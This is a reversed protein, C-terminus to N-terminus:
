GQILRLGILGLTVAFCCSDKVKDAIPRHLIFARIVNITNAVLFLGQGFLYNGGIIIQGILMMALSAYMVNVFIKEKM